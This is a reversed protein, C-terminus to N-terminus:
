SYGLGFGTKRAPEVGYDYYGGKLTQIVLVASDTFLEVDYRRRTINEANMM